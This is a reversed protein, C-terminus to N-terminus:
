LESVEAREEARELEGELIVLKRAVQLPLLPDESTLSGLWGQRLFSIGGPVLVSTTKATGGFYFMPFVCSTGRIVMLTSPPSFQLVFTLKPRLGLALFHVNSFPGKQALPM